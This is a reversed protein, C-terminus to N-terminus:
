WLLNRNRIAFCYYHTTRCYDHSKKVWINILTLSSDMVTSLFELALVCLSWEATKWLDLTTRAEDLVGKSVANTLFYHLHLSLDRPIWLKPELQQVIADKTVNCTVERSKTPCLKSFSFALAAMQHRSISKSWQFNKLFFCFFCLVFGFKHRSFIWWICHQKHWCLTFTNRKKLVDIFTDTLRAWAVSPLATDVRNAGVGALPGRNVTASSIM